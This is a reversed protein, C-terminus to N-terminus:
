EKAPQDTEQNSNRIAWRNLWALGALAGGLLLLSFVRILGGLGSIDVLFVKAVALGIVLLGARRLMASQRALSQYFLTAGLTLLAITYSYLEAQGIEPLEMGEAGRWFHRITLALWLGSLFIACGLFLKRLGASLQTLWYAGLGFAIAPLLYAPILTNILAPGLVKSSVLGVAPNFLTVALGALMAGFILFLAGLIKRVIALSGGAELRKLQAVGLVIWITANLGFNWHSELANNLDWPAIARYLLISILLGTASFLASELLVVSRPRDLSRLFQLALAFGAVAGGYSLLVEALPAYRAWELGPDAVLRYGVATIGILIYLGMAPLNFQRDLWAAAVITVVLATTLAASSFLITVGFAICSLASLTAFSMRLRDDPGDARAFREAMVVMVVSLVLAHLAWPMAGIIFAPQAVVELTVAVLPAFLAAGAALFLHSSNGTAPESKLSRWAAAVSVLVGIAVIISAQMQVPAALGGVVRLATESIERWIAWNTALIAFFALAPIAAMDTLAPANRAWILLALCLAALVIIATWFPNVTSTEFAALVILGCSALLTAGALKVPFEPWPDGKKHAFLAVSLMTGAHDPVFKRVPIAIAILALFACYIIFYPIIVPSSTIMLVVAAAFGLCLSLVSVWAWRRMTDIALGVGTIVAFYALLWSPDDSSGGVVFPALMAGIIGVAALLPGYFWGLLLALAGVMAMGIFAMEPGIFGYLLRASLVAGFLTVIGASSFTSPLYATTSDESDGFRRRMFEGGGILAGGFAFAAAVRFAPPLLGQEMGYQVLFIGALALSVAAVAYFWNQTLWNILTQLKEASFVASEASNSSATAAKIPLENTVFSTAFDVATDSTDAESKPLPATNIAREQLDMLAKSFKIDLALIRSKLRSNAILLYIGLVGFILSGYM